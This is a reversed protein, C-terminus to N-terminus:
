LAALLRATLAAKNGTEELGRAALAIKLQAVPMKKADEKTLGLVEDLKSEEPKDTKKQMGATVM